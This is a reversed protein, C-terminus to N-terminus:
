SVSLASASKSAGVDLELGLPLSIGVREVKESMPLSELLREGGKGFELRATGRVPLICIDIETSMKHATLIALLVLQQSTPVGNV